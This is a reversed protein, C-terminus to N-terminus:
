KGYSLVLTEILTEILSDDVEDDVATYTLTDVLQDMFERTNVMISSVNSIAAQEPLKVVLGFLKKGEFKFFFRYNGLVLHELKLNFYSVSFDTIASLFTFILFPDVKLDDIHQKTFLPQGFRNLIFSYVLEFQVDDEKEVFMAKEFSHIKVALENVITDIYQLYNSQQNNEFYKQVWKEISKIVVNLMKYVRSGVGTVIEPEVHLLLIISYKETHAFIVRKEELVVEHMPTELIDVTFNELAKLYDALMNYNLTFSSDLFERKLILNNSEDLIHISAIGWSAKTSESNSPLEPMNVSRQNAEDM